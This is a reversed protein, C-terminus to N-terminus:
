RGCKLDSVVASVGGMGLLGAGLWQNERDPKVNDGTWGSMAEIM